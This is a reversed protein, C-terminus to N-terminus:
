RVTWAYPITTCYEDDPGSSAVESYSVAAVVEFTSALNNGSDSGSGFRGHVLKRKYLVDNLASHCLGVKHGVSYAMDSRAPFLRLQQCLRYLLAAFPRYPHREERELLYGASNREERELGHHRPIYRLGLFVDCLNKCKNMRLKSRISALSAPFSGRIFNKSLSAAQADSWGEDAVSTMGHTAVFM